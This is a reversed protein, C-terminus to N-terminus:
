YIKMSTYNFYLIMNTEPICILTKIIKYMVFYYECYSLNSDIVM